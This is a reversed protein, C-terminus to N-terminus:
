PIFHSLNSQIARATRLQSFLSKAQSRGTFHVYVSRDKQLRLLYMGHEMERGIAVKWSGVKKRAIPRVRYNRGFYSWREIGREADKAAAAAFASASRKQLAHWAEDWEEQTYGREPTGADPVIPNRRRKRRRRPNDNEEADLRISEEELAYIHANLKDTSVGRKFIAPDLDTASCIEFAVLQHNSLDTDSNNRFWGAQTQVNLDTGRSTSKELAHSLSGVTAHRAGAWEVLDAVTNVAPNRRRKRRRRPNGAMAAIAGLALAGLM